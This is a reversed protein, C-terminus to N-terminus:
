FLWARNFRSPFQVQAISVAHACARAAHRHSRSLLSLTAISLVVSLSPSLPLALVPLLALLRSTPPPLLRALPSEFPAGRDAAFFVLKLAGM